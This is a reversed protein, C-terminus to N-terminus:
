GQSSLEASGLVGTGSSSLAAGRRPERIPKQAMCSSWCEMPLISGDRRHVCVCVCAPARVRWKPTIVNPIRKGLMM